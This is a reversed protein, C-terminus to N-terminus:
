KVNEKGPTPENAGAKPAPDKKQEAPLVGTATLMAELGSLGERDYLELLKKSEAIKGAARLGDLMKVVKAREAVQAARIRAADDFAKKKARAIAGIRSRRKKTILPEGSM